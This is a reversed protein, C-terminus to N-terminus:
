KKIPKLADAINKVFQEPTSTGVLAKQFEAPWTMETWQGMEPTAPFLYADPISDISVKQFIDDKYFQLAAVSKLFPVQGVTRCMPDHVEPSDLWEIFEISADKYKTTSLTSVVTLEM